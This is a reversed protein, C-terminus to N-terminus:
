TNWILIEHSKKVHSGENNKKRNKGIRTDGQGFTYQWEPVIMNFDKYWDRITECDNYSLIFGGQHKKLLDRFREHDFGVHHVPFNRHPYMGVFMKGEELYYPPDCYLLDKKYRPIFREFSECRVKLNKCSFNRLKQLHTKYRKEQLYVSSPWGLFHPGYSCQSSFYYQAALELPELIDEGDWHKKMIKKQEYYNENTPKFQDLRDALENNHNLLYDWFNILIDFVDAGVVDLDLENAMAIELSGGGLFPSILRKTNNPIRETVLGVALSKGGAYRLLTGRYRKYPNNKNKGTPSLLKRLLHEKRDQLTIEEEDNFELTQQVSDKM